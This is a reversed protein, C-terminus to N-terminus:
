FIDDEKIESDFQGVNLETEFQTLGTCLHM